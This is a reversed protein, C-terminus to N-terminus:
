NKIYNKMIGGYNRICCSELVSDLTKVADKMASNNDPIIYDRKKKIIYKSLSQINTMKQIKINPEYNLRMEKKWLNQLEKKDIFDGAMIIHLHPHYIKNNKDYAIDIWRYYGKVAEKMRNDDLLKNWSSMIDAIKDVLEYNECGKITLTLFRFDYEKNMDNLIKNINEYFRVQKRFECVPCLKVKCWHRKQCIYLEKSKYIYNEYGDPNSYYIEEGALNEYVNLLIEREEMLKDMYRSQNIEYM